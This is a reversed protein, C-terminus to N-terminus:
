ENELILEQRSVHSDRRPHISICSVVHTWSELSLVQLPLQVKLRLLLVDRAWSSTTQKSLQLPCGDGGSRSSIKSLDRTVIRKVPPLSLFSRCVSSWSFRAYSDQYFLLHLGKVKTVRQRQRKLWIDLLPVTRFFAKCTGLTKDKGNRGEKRDLRENLPLSHFLFRQSYLNLWIDLQLTLHVVTM